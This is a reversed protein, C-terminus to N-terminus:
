MSKPNYKPLHIKDVGPQHLNPINQDIDPYTKVVEFEAETLSPHSKRPTTSHTTPYSTSNSSISTQPSGFSELELRPQLQCYKSASNYNRAETLSCSAAEVRLLKQKLFPSLTNEWTANLWFAACLLGMPPPFICPVLSWNPSAAKQFVEPLSSQM